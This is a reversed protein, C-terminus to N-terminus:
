EQREAGCLHEQKAIDGNGRSGTRQDRQKGTQRHPARGGREKRRSGECGSAPMANNVITVTAARFRPAANTWAVVLGARASLRPNSERRPMRAPSRTAMTVAAAPWSPVLPEPTSSARGIPSETRAMVMWSCNPASVAAAVSDEAMRPVILRALNEAVSATAIGDIDGAKAKRREKATESAIVMLRMRHDRSPLCYTLFAKVPVIDRNHYSQEIIM